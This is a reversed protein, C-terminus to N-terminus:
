RSAAFSTKTVIHYFITRVKYFTEDSLQFLVIGFCASSESEGALLLLFQNAGM